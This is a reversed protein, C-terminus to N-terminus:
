NKIAKPKMFKSLDLNTQNQITEVLPPINQLINTFPNDINNGTNWYTMTPNMDRLAEANAKALKEYQGKNIMLYAILNEKGVVEEIKELGEAEAELLALNGKAEKEKLEKIGEAEKIKEHLRANALIEIAEAERDAKIKMSEAEGIAEQIKSEKEGEARKIQSEKVGEADKIKTEKEVQAQALDTAKLHAIQQEKKKEEVEKELEAKRILAKQKAEISAVEKKRENEYEIVEREANSIAILKRAENEAQVAEQEYAINQKRTDREREKEGIKYNKEAEAIDVKSDGEAKSRTKQRLFQFYESGPTDKLEKINANFIKLGFQDLEKQVNKIVNDKFEERDNFVEEISMQAILVRSEGEIIGNVIEDIRKIGDDNNKANEGVLYLAYKELSEPDDKPGITFVGPLIFEMKEKSMVDLEFNYNRPRMEIFEYRQFPWQFAKKNIDMKVIGLGTRVIYQDAKAVKYRWWTSGILITVIIAPIGTTALTLFTGVKRKQQHYIQINQTSKKQQLSFKNKLYFNNSLKFKNNNFYNAFVPLLKTFYRSFKILNLEKNFRFIKKMTVVM